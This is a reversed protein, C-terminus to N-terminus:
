VPPTVYPVVDQNGDQPSSKPFYHYRMGVRERSIVGHELLAEIHYTIASKSVGLRSAMDIQSIGPSDLILGYVTEQSGTLRSFGPAPLPIDAPYYLKRAGGERSMILNESQLRGLHYLLTSHPINLDLLLTACNVGPNAKIFSFLKGRVFNDLIRDHELKTYLLFSFSFISLEDQGYQFCLGAASAALLMCIAAQPSPGPLDVRAQGLSARPHFKGPTRDNKVTPPRSLSCYSYCISDNIGEM